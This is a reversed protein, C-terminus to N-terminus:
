KPSLHLKIKKKKNKYVVVIEYEGISNIIDFDIWKVPIGLVSALFSPKVASFLKGNENAPVSLSLFNKLSFFLKETDKENKLRKTEQEKKRNKELRGIEDNVDVVKGQPILSNLAYGDGVEVVDGRVGCGKIDILLIVKM